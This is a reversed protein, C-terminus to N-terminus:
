IKSTIWFIIFYINQIRRFQQHIQQLVLQLVTSLLDLRISFVNEFVIYNSIVQSYKNTSQLLNTVIYLRAKSQYFKYNLFKNQRLYDSLQSSNVDHSAIAQSKIRTTNDTNHQTMLNFVKRPYFTAKKYGKQTRFKKQIRGSRRAHNTLLFGNLEEIEFATVM